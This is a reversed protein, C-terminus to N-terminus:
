RFLGGREIGKATLHSISHISNCATSQFIPSIGTPMARSGNKGRKKRRDKEEKPGSWRGARISFSASIPRLYGGSSLAASPGQPGVLGGGRGRRRFCPRLSLSLDYFDDGPYISPLEGKGRWAPASVDFFPQQYPLRWQRPACQREWLTKKKKKGEGGRRTGGRIATDLLALCVFSPHSPKVQTGRAPSASKTKKKEKRKELTSRKVSSVIPVSVGERRRATRGLLGERPPHFSRNKKGGRGRKKRKKKEKWPAEFIISRIPGRNQAALHEPQDL